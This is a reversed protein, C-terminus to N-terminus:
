NSTEVASLLARAEDAAFGTPYDALYRKADRAAELVHGTRKLARMREVRAEAALPSAPYQSLLETLRTVAAYDDGHGHADMASQFLTNEEALTGAEDFAASAVTSVTNQAVVKEPARVASSKSAKPSSAANDTVPAPLAPTPAKPLLANSTWSQGATVAAVDTGDRRVVIRGKTVFVTTVAEAGPEKTVDVEFITGTVVVDVNPTEVVLKPTASPHDDVHARLDGHDLKLRHTSARPTVLSVESSAGLDAVVLNTLKVEAVALPATSLTDGLALAAHLVVSSETGHSLTVTGMVARVGSAPQAEVPREAVEHGKHSLRQVGAALTLAAAAAFAMTWGRRRRERQKREAARLIAEGIAPVVRDRRVALAGEDEVPVMDNQWLAGLDKAHDQPGLNSM